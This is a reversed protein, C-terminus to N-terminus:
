LVDLKLCQETATNTTVQRSFEAFFDFMQHLLRLPRREKDLGGSQRIGTLHDHPHLLRQSLRICSGSPGQSRYDDHDIPRPEQLEPGIPRYRFIVELLSIHHHQVLQILDVTTLRIEHFPADLGRIWRGCDDPRHM